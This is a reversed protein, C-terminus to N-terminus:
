FSNNLKKNITIEKIIEQQEPTKIKLIALTLSAGFLVGLAFSRIVLPTVTLAQKKPLFRKDYTSTNKM